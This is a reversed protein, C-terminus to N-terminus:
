KSQTEAKALCDSYEPLLDQNQSDEFFAQVQTKDSSSALAFPNIISNSPVTYFIKMDYKNNCEDKSPPTSSSGDDLIAMLMYPSMQNPNSPNPSSSSSMMLFPLLDSLSSSGM